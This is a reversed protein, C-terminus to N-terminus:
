IHVPTIRSRSFNYTYINVNQTQQVFHEHENQATCQISRALPSTSIISLTFKIATGKLSLHQHIVLQQRTKNKDIGLIKGLKNNFIILKPEQVPVPNIREYFEQPLGDYSNDFLM